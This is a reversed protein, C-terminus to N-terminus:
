YFVAWLLSCVYENTAYLQIQTLLELPIADPDEMLVKPPQPDWSKAQEHLTESTAESSRTPATNSSRSASKEQATGNVTPRDGSQPEDECKEKAVHELMESQTM